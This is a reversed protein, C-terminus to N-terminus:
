LSKGEIRSTIATQTFDRPQLTQSTIASRTSLRPQISTLIPALDSGPTLPSLKTVSDLTAANTNTLSYSHASTLALWPPHTPPATSTLTLSSTGATHLLTSYSNTVDTNPNLSTSSSSILPFTTNETPMSINLSRVSRRLKQPSKIFVGSLM